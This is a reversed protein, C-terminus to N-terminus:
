LHQYQGRDFRKNITDCLSQWSIAGMKDEASQFWLAANGTFHMTAYEVWYETSVAYVRFYKECARSWLRPNEGDFKPFDAQPPPNTGSITQKPAELGPVAITNATFPVMSMIHKPGTVPTPPPTDLSEVAAGRHQLEVGHGSQGSHVGVSPSVSSSTGTLPITGAPPSGLAGVGVGKAIHDVQRHLERVALGLDGVKSEMAPKWSEFDFKIEDLEPKFTDVSSKISELEPKINSLTSRLEQMESERRQEGEAILKAL